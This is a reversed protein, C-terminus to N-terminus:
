SKTMNLSFHQQYPLLLERLKKLCVAKKTSVSRANQFGIREAIEDLSFGYYERAWLIERCIDGLESLLQKIMSIEDQQIMEALIGKAKEPMHPFESVTDMHKRKLDRIKNKCRNQFISYLYTSIKSDGRFTHNSIQRSLYVIADAYVDRSDEESLRFRRMGRRVLGMHRDFLYETMRRGAMGGQRIAQLIEKDSYKVGKSM